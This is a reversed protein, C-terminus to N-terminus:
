AAVPAPATLREWLVFKEVFKWHHSDKGRQRFEDLSEQVVLPLDAVKSDGSLFTSEWLEKVKRFDKSEEKAWIAYFRLTGDNFRALILKDVGEIQGIGLVFPKVKLRLNSNPLLKQLIDALQYARETM